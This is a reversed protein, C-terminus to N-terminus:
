HEPVPVLPQSFGSILHCVLNELAQKLEELGVLHSTQETLEVGLQAATELRNLQGKLVTSVLDAPELDLHVNQM